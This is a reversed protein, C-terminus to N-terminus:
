LACCGFIIKMSAAGVAQCRNTSKLPVAFCPASAVAAVTCLV